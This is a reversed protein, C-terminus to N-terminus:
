IWQQSVKAIRQQVPGREGTCVLADEAPTMVLVRNPALPPPLSVIWFHKHVARDFPVLLHYLLQLPHRADYWFSQFLCHGNRM